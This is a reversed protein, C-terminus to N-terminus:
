KSTYLSFTIYVLIHTAQAMILIWIRNSWIGIYVHVVPWFGTKSLGYIQNKQTQFARWPDTLLTFHSKSLARRSRDISIYIMYMHCVMRYIYM